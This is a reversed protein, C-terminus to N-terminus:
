KGCFEFFIKRALIYLQCKTDRMEENRSNSNHSTEFCGNLHLLHLSTIKQSIYDTTYTWIKLAAHINKRHPRCSDREVWADWNRWISLVGCKQELKPLLIYNRLDPGPFFIALFFYFVCGCGNGSYFVACVIAMTKRCTFPQLMSATTNDREMKSTHKAQLFYNSLFLFRIPTCCRQKKDLCNDQSWSLASSRSCNQRTTRCHCFHSTEKWFSIPWFFARCEVSHGNSVGKKLTWLKTKSFTWLFLLGNGKPFCSPCRRKQKPSCLFLLAAEPMTVQTKSVTWNASQMRADPVFLTTESSREQDEMLSSSSSQPYCAEPRDIRQWAARLGATFRCCCFTPIHQGASRWVNPGKPGLWLNKAQTIRAFIPIQFM